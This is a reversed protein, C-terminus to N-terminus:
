SIWIMKVLAYQWKTGDKRLVVMYGRGCLRGCVYSVAVLMRDNTSNRGLLKVDADARYERPLFFASKRMIEQFDGSQFDLDRGIRKAEAIRPKLNELADADILDSHDVTKYLMAIRHLLEEARPTGDVILGYFLSDDMAPLDEERCQLKKECPRPRFKWELKKFSDDSLGEAPFIVPVREGSPWKCESLKSNGLLLLTLTAFGATEEDENKCAHILDQARLDGIAFLEAAKDDDDGDWAKLLAITSAYTDSVQSLSDQALGLHFPSFVSMLVAFCIIFILKRMLCVM